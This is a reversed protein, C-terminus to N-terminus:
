LRTSLGVGYWITALFGAMNLLSSVGHMRGFAKNLKVMEKSHPAPDYSKKGDRSEQVKRELMIKTTAPGVVLMNIVSTVFVTALPYLVSTRTSADLIGAIGSSITLPHPSPYTLAMLVPLTSQLGFYIPFMKQQLKSFQPRDLARFSVIGGVFSQSSNATSSMMHHIIM